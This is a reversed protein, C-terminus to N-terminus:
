KTVQQWTAGVDDSRVVVARDADLGVGYLRQEDPTVAVASV